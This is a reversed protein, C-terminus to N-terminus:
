LWGRAEWDAVRDRATEEMTHYEMELLRAAKDTNYRILHVADKGGGPVGKQLKLSDPAADLWDQWVFPGANVIIREGGQPARSRARPRSRPRRDLLNTGLTESPSPSTRTDNTTPQIDNCACIKLFRSLLQAPPRLGFVFPPNIAVLDWGIETKHKAVFDWAAREALTKSARYKTMALASRGM